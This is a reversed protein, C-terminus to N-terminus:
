QSQYKSFLSPKTSGHNKAKDEFILPRQKSFAPGLAMRSIYVDKRLDKPTVTM